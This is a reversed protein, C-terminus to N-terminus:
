GESSEVGRKKVRYARDTPHVTKCEQCVAVRKGLVKAFLSTDRPGGCVYCDVLPAGLRVGRRKLEHLKDKTRESIISGEWQAVSGLVNCILESTPDGPRVWLGQDVVYFEIGRDRLVRISEDLHSLSRAWRDVKATLVLTVRRGMAEGMLRQQASRNNDRGSAVDVWAGVVEHGNSTAWQRCREVQPEPDQEDTSVRAYIGVRRPNSVPM